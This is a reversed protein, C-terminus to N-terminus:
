SQAQQLEKAGARGPESPVWHCLAKCEILDIGDIAVRVASDPNLAPLSSVRTTLPLGELRVLNERLVTGGIEKVNEQLLWRLAWYTELMRQHEDYRAYAAEFAQLAAHLSESTRTVPPRKGALVAALQRQNLLDVYRRLPSTM